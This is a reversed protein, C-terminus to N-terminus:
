TINFHYELKNNRYEGKSVHDLNFNYRNVFIRSYHHILEEAVTLHPKECELLETMKEILTTGLGNYQYDPVVRICRLKTEAETKKGMVFGKIINNETAIIMKEDGVIIGPIVKNTYWHTINPYYKDLDVLMDGVTSMNYINFNQSQFTIM